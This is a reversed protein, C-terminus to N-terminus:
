KLPFLTHRNMKTNFFKTPSEMIMDLIKEYTKGYNAEYKLWGKWDNKIQSKVKNNTKYYQLLHNKITEENGLSANKPRDNSKSICLNFYTIGKRKNNFSVVSCNFYFNDRLHEVLGNRETLERKMKRLKTREDKLKISARKIAREKQISNWLLRKYSLYEIRIDEDLKNYKSKPIFDIIRKKLM